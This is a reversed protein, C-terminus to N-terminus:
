RGEIQCAYSFCEIRDPCQTFLINTPLDHFSPYTLVLTPVGIDDLHVFVGFVAIPPAQFFTASWKDEERFFRAPDIYVSLLFSSGLEHDAIREVSTEQELM